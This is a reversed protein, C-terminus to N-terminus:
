GDRSVAPLIACGASAGCGVPAAPSGPGPIALPSCVEDWVLSWVPTLITMTLSPDFKDQLETSGGFLFVRSYSTEGPAIEGFDWLPEEGPNNNPKIVHRKQTGVNKFQVLDNRSIKCIQPNFGAESIEVTHVTRETDALLVPAGRTAAVVAILALAASLPLRRMGLM